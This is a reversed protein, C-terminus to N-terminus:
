FIGVCGDDSDSLRGLKMEVRAMRWMSAAVSRARDIFLSLDFHFNNKLLDLRFVCAYHYSHRTNKVILN